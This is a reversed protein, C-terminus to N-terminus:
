ERIVVDMGQKILTIIVSIYTLDYVKIFENITITLTVTPDMVIRHGSTHTKVKDISVSM